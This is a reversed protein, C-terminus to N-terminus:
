AIAPPSNIDIGDHREIPLGSFAYSLPFRTRYEAVFRDALERVSARDSDTTAAVTVSPLGALAASMLVLLFRIRMLPSRSRHVTVQAQQHIALRRGPRRLRPLSRPTRRAAADGAPRERVRLVSRRLDRRGPNRLDIRSRARGQATD